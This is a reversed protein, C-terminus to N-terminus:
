RGLFAPDVFTFLSQDIKGGLQVDLLSVHTEQRQADVVVWQRLTLPNDAFVLTLSGQGPSSTRVLTVQIQGPARSIGTVTVDGSLKINDSLLISLPTTSLPYHSTQHLQSDYFSVQGYGVVLLLPSPPAYEFRLRGPRHIWANGGSTAGNPAVQLFRAKLTTLGNLYAEIRAIDASDQPTLAIAQAHARSGLVPLLSLALLTRRNM